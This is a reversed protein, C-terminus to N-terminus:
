YGVGIVPYHMYLEYRWDAKIMFRKTVYAEVGIAGVVGLGFKSAHGKYSLYDQRYRVDSRVLSLGVEIYPKVRGPLLNYQVTFPVSFINRYETETTKLQSNFNSVVTQTRKNTMVNVGFNVSM